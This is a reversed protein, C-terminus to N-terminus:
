VVGIGIKSLGRFPSSTAAVSHNVGLSAAQMVSLVGVLIFNEPNRMGDCGHLIRLWILDETDGILPRHLMARGINKSWTWFVEVPIYLFCVFPAIRPPLAIRSWQETLTEDYLSLLVIGHLMSYFAYVSARFIDGYSGTTFLSRQRIALTWFMHTFLVLSFVLAGPTSPAATMLVYTWLILHFLHFWAFPIVPASDPIRINALIIVLFQVLLAGRIADESAQPLTQINMLVNVTLTTRALAVTVEYARETIRFQM